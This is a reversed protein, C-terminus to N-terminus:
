AVMERHGQQPAPPWTDENSTYIPITTTIIRYSCIERTIQPHVKLLAPSGNTFIDHTPDLTYGYIMNRVELPLSNFNAM